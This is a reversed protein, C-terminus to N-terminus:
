KEKNFIPAILVRYDIGFWNSTIWLILGYGLAALLLFFVDPLPPAFNRLVLVVALISILSHLAIKVMRGIPFLQNFRIGLIKSSHSLAILIKIVSISVSLVAIALPAKFIIVVFYGFTWSFLALVYHLRAYFRMEGMSFLLPAFIIVNFFNIVMAVTFYKASVSYAESYIITMVEKSFFLSFIVLPYILIVSKRLSSQWLDILQDLGSKDYIIKSFMPFLVTATAGTVMGVLPLEIFGNAFEAFIEPGFYRSIYFQDAAKIAIGAISAGVLPLSYSFIEKITLGSGESHIGKFPIGKFYWAILLTIISAVIWGYIAHLFTGKFLIVPLVIFLLMLFRSSINYIAIYITKKYTSFIGEIGLTPLLLMPIPSFFKLGKALDPNKLVVAILGSFVLLFVSFILGFLFLVKSVKWVIEKGQALSYRPLFYAFVRPLGATFVVLLTSYVYLVQRYTGYDAKDFYRSLIAASVISLAFSSLSGVGVWM